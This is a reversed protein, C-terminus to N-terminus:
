STEAFLQVCVQIELLTLASGALKKSVLTMVDMMSDVMRITVNKTGLSWLDMKVTPQAFLLCTVKVLGGKNLLAYTQADTVLSQTAMTVNKPHMVQVTEVFLVIDDTKQYTEKKVDQASVRMFVLTMIVHHVILIM